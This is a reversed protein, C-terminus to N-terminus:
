FGGKSKMQYICFFLSHEFHNNSLVPFVSWIFFMIRKTSVQTKLWMNTMELGLHNSHAPLLVSSMCVFLLVVAVVFFPSKQNM